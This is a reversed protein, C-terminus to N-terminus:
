YICNKFRIKTVCIWFLDVSNDISIWIILKIKRPRIPRNTKSLLSNRPFCSKPQLSFPSYSAGMRLCKGSKCVAWQPILTKTIEVWSPTWLIAGTWVASYELLVTMFKRMRGKNASVPQPIDNSWHTGEM